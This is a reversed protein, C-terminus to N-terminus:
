EAEHVHITGDAKKCKKKLKSDVPDIYMVVSGEPIDDDVPEEQLANAKPYPQATVSDVLLQMHPPLVAM